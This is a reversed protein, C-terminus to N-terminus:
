GNDKVIEFRRSVSEVTLLELVQEPLVERAKKIDLRSSTVTQWRVAPVGDVYGLTADGLAAEIHQRAVEARESLAAIQAKLDKYEAVWSAVASDFDVTEQNNQISM